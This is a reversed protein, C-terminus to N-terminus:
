PKVGVMLAMRVLVSLSSAQMKTMVNARHVEVTRASIQLDYAITKNPHGQVLGELVEPQDPTEAYAAAYLKGAEELKGLTQLAMAKGLQAQAHNPVAALTADFHSLAQEPKKLELACVGQGLRAQWLNPNVTAAQAFAESAKDFQGQRELALGLNYHATPHKPNADIAKQYAAAAEAFQKQEFHLHGKVWHVDQNAVTPASALKTAEALAEEVKGEKELVLVNALPAEVARKASDPQPPEDIQVVVAAPAAAPAM